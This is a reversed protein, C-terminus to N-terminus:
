VKLGYEKELYHATTDIFEKADALCQQPSLGNESGTGSWNDYDARLRHEYLIPLKATWADVKPYNDPLDAIKRHDDGALSVSGYVIYRVAKSANYAAYYARSYVCRSNAAPDAASADDYHARALEFWKRAVSQVHSELLHLDTSMALSVLKAKFEAHNKLLELTNREDSVKPMATACM